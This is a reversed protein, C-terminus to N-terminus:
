TENESNYLIMTFFNSEYTKPPPSQGIAGGPDAGTRNVTSQDLTPDNNVNSPLGLIVNYLKTPTHHIVTPLRTATTLELSKYTSKLKTGALLLANNPRFFM